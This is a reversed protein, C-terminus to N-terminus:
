RDVAVEPTLGPRPFDIWIRNRETRVVHADRSALAERYRTTFDALAPELKPTAVRAFPMIGSRGLRVSRSVLVDGVIRGNARTITHLLRHRTDYWTEIQFEAPHRSARLFQVRAIVHIVPRDGLAALARALPPAGSGNWPAPPAVGLPAAAGAAPQAAPADRLEVHRHSRRVADAFRRRAVTYLWALPEEPGREGLAAAADAFVRQTLEEAEHHDRTRRRLFRYVDGYHRRFVAEADGTVGTM